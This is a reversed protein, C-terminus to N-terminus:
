AAAGEVRIRPAPWCGCPLSRAATGGDPGGSPARGQSAKVIAERVVKRPDAGEALHRVTMASACATRLSGTGRIAACRRLPDGDVALLRGLVASAFAPGGRMLAAVLVEAVDECPVAVQGKRFEQAGAEVSISRIIQLDDRLFAMDEERWRAGVSGTYLRRGSALTGVAGGHAVTPAAGTLPAATPHVRGPLPSASPATPGVPASASGPPADSVVIVPDPPSAERVAAVPHSPRSGPRPRQAEKLGAPMPSSAPYEPGDPRGSMIGPGAPSRMTGGDGEWDRDDESARGSHGGLYEVVRGAIRRVRRALELKPFFMTWAASRPTEAARPIPRLGPPFLRSGQTDHPQPQPLGIAQRLLLPLGLLFVSVVVLAVAVVAAVGGYGVLVEMAWGVWASDTSGHALAGSLTKVAAGATLGVVNLAHAQVERLIVQPRAARALLVLATLWQAGMVMLMGRAVVGLIAMVSRAGMAEVMRGATGVVVSLTWSAIPLGLCAMVMVERVWGVLRGACAADIADRRGDVLSERVAALDADAMGVIDRGLVVGTAVAGTAADALWPWRQTGEERGGGAEPEGDYAEDHAM